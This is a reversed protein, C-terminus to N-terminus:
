FVTIKDKIREWVDKRVIKKEVLEEPRQYPRGSIIKQATAPGIGWLTDLEPESATNINIKDQTTELNLNRNQSKINSKQSKNPIYIKAGDLLKQALNINKAVWDRDAEASLGGAVTLLDNVRDGLALQYVGPRLVEGSAEVTIKSIAGETGAEGKEGESGVEWKVNGVEQEGLVEVKPGNEFNFVKVGLVGLGILILGALLFGVTLKNKELIEEFDIKKKAREEDKESIRVDVLEANM